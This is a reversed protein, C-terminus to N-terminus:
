AKKRNVALLGIAILAMGALNQATIPEGLVVAGMTIASPPILLTVLAVAVAGSRTLVRFFLLYAIGTCLTGLALVCLVAYTPPLTLTWPQDVLCAVPLLILSSSSVQGFAIELPKLGMSVFRRGFINATAYSIAAGVCALEGIVSADMDLLLGPGILVIVGGFGLAIGILKNATLREDSTLLHAFMLTFIPTMANIISALGASISHTGFVILSMPVANNLTGMILFARWRTWGRPLGVGSLVLIAGLTLAGLAVRAFVITFVPLFGVAIKMFLYSGGWIVSLTILAIWEVPGIARFPSFAPMVLVKPHLDFEFRKRKDTLYVGIVV